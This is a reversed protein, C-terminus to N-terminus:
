NEPSTAAIPDFDPASFFAILRRRQNPPPGGPESPHTSPEDQARLFEGVLRRLEQYKTESLVVSKTVLTIEGEAPPLSGYRTYRRFGEQVAGTLAGVLGNIEESTLSGREEESLYAASEVVTVVRELTGHVRREEVVQLLGTALLLNIHRYLTTLPVDDLYACLQRPTLQRDQLAVVIRARVPHLLVRTKTLARM